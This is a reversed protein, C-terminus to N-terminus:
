LRDLVVNATYGGRTCPLSVRHSPEDSERTTDGNTLQNRSKSYGKREQDKQEWEEKYTSLDAWRITNGVVVFVETGRRAITRRPGPFDSRTTTGDSSKETSRTNEQASFLDFGPSPRSLWAPTHSTIKPM